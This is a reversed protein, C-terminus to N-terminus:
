LKTLFALTFSLAMTMLTMSFHIKGASSSNQANTGTSTSSNATLIATAIFSNWAAITASPYVTSSVTSGSGYFIVDTGPLFDGALKPDEGGVITGNVTSGTTNSGLIFERLFVFAAEPVFRPVLHGAGQFLVYTLNREQHVIGAFKGQDDFWPTSPKKTFGQIGGFTMNQIVVETGRHAVLADDNGSYLIIDVGKASANTALDTLLVSSEVSPDGFENSGPAKPRLKSGFPYNFGSNWQRLPAHLAARTRNDNLFVSPDSPAEPDLADPIDYPDYSAGDEGGITWPFSFNAAYSLIEDFLFCGFDTSLTGNPRNSLDRKQVEQLMRDRKALATTDTQILSLAQNLRARRKSRGDVIKSLAADSVTTFPDILTPFLGNQPYTLNLDYGCLKEQTQFYEFVLPDYGILQPYTELVTVAPLEEFVALSGIAGDGIAIKRLNVPPDTMSFITKTIYPIYMGAYSEGTLYLPRTALSPFVKVVNSLFGVFDQGVQDENAVYGTSDATSYGTGVPQDVWFADALKDWSFNNKVISYDETVLLPGNETMFGLFSSSGPGGNLWILWPDESKEGAAATLSGQEKEFAWFFLTDNPHGPREVPLNGAFNRAIPSTVNPLPETVQFYAQWIPGLAENPIGSYNHPFTNSVQAEVLTLAVLVQSLVLLIMM